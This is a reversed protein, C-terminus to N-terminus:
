DQNGGPSLISVQEIVHIGYKERLLGLYRLVIHYQTLSPYSVDLSNGIIKVITNATVELPVIFNDKFLTLNEVQNIWTSWQPSLIFHTQFGCVKEKFIALATESSSPKQSNNYIRLPYVGERGLFDRAMPFEVFVNCDRELIPITAYRGSVVIYHFMSQSLGWKLDTFNNNVLALIETKANNINHKNKAPCRIIVNDYRILDNNFQPLNFTNSFQIFVNYKRMITQVISGGSGIIPRHFVEGIHFSHEVPLEDSLLGTTHPLQWPDDTILELNMIIDNPDNNLLKILCNMSQDMIRTLKGMKKGSIFNEFDYHLQYITKIQALHPIKSLFLSNSSLLDIFHPLQIILTFAFTHKGDHQAEPPTVIIHDYNHLLNFITPLDISENLHFVVEVINQLFQLSLDKICRDVLEMAPGRVSITHNNISVVCQNKVGSQILNHLHYLKLFALKPGPIVNQRIVRQHIFKDDNNISCDKIIRNKVQLLTAETTSDCKGGLYLIDDNSLLTHVGYQAKIFDKNYHNMITALPGGGGAQSLDIKDSITYDSLIFTILPLCQDIHNNQGMLYIYHPSAEKEEGQAALNYIDTRTILIDINYLDACQDVWETNIKHSQHNYPLSVINNYYLCEPDKILLDTDWILHSCQNIHYSICQNWQQPVLFWSDQREQREQRKNDIEIPFSDDWQVFNTNTSHILHEGSPKKIWKSRINSHFPLSM